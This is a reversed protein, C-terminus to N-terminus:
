QNESLLKVALKEANRIAYNTGRDEPYVQAMTLLYLNSYPTSVSPLIQSYNLTTVPQAFHARWIRYDVIWDNSFEPFMLKLSGVCLNLYDEDCMNFEEENTPMYRSLYVIKVGGFQESNVLNTHEIVGVFPFGPDNVNLWYTESLSRNLMLVLCVNGLYNISNLSELWENRESDASIKTLQKPAGTFIVQRFQFNNKCETTIHTVKDGVFSMSSVANNTSIEGGCEIIKKAMEEILKGFGGVMFLLSEKGNKIRSGGRLVLKRWMWAASVGEAYISFKAAVLPAWVLQYAKTGCLPELWERINLSEIKKWNKVRRILLITLGLRIRSVVTLAKFSLLDLPSSLRWISNNFYMGTKSKTERMEKDLNLEKVLEIIATDSKFWHHYFCELRKGNSLVFDAALGGLKDSAELVLVSKGSQVLRLALTLGSFGAGIIVFDYFKATMVKSNVSIYNSEWGSSSVGSKGDRGHREMKGFSM